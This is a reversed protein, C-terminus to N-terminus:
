ELKVGMGLSMIVVIGIFLSIAIMVWFATSNIIKFSESEPNNPTEVKFLILNSVILCLCITLNMVTSISQNM